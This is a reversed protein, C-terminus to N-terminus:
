DTSYRIVLVGLTRAIEIPQHVAMRGERDHYALKGLGNGHDSYKSGHYHDEKELSILVKQLHDILSSCQTPARIASVTRKEPCLLIWDRLRLRGVSRRGLLSRIRVAM